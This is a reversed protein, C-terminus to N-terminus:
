FPQSGVPTDSLDDELEVDSDADSVEPWLDMSDSGSLLDGVLHAVVSLLHLQLSAGGEYRLLENAATHLCARALDHLLQQVKSPLKEESPSNNQRVLTPKDTM